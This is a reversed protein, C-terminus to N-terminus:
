GRKIACFKAGDDLVIVRVEPLCAQMAGAIQEMEDAALAREYCLALVDGHEVSVTYAPATGMLWRLLWRKILQGM